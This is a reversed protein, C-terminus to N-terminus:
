GERIRRGAWPSPQRWAYGCGMAQRGSRRRAIAAAGPCTAESRQDVEIEESPLSGGEGSVGGATLVSTWDLACRKGCKWCSGFIPGTGKGKGGEQKPEAKDVAIEAGGITM